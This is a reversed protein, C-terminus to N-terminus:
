RRTRSSTHRTQQLQWLEVKNGDPDLFWGFRGYPSDRVRGVLKGGAAVVQKLAGEVDDVLFNVMHLSESPNFYRTSASFASWVTSSGKPMKGPSFSASAAGALPFGLCRSYWRALKRPNASKFFVGGVGLAKAVHGGEAAGGGCNRRVSAIQQSPRVVKGQKVIVTGVAIDGIAEL